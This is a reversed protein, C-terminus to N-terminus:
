RGEKEFEEKEYDTSNKPEKPSSETKIPAVEIHEVQINETKYARNWNRITSFMFYFNLATGLLLLVCIILIRNEPSLLACLYRLKDDVVERISVIIRKM